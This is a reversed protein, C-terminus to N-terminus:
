ECVTFSVLFIRAMVPKMENMERMAAQHFSKAMFRGSGSGKRIFFLMVAFRIGSISAVADAVILEFM